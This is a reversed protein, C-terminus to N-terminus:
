KYLSNNIIFKYNLSLLPVLNYLLKIFYTHLQYNFM